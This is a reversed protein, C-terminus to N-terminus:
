AISRAALEIRDRLSPWDLTEDRLSEYAFQRVADEELEARYDVPSKGDIRALCCAAVHAAARRARDDVPQASQERYGRWFRDIRDTATERNRGIRIARFVKLVLHSLFFGLDFAPDGAHATEFDVITFGGHHVLMNKPSFDAHVFTTEVPASLGAILAGLQHRLDYHVHATLRYYPDIRLQDFVTRDALPPEHLAPSDTPIAHMRGLIRGALEALDRDDEDQLLRGKWPEAEAPARSMAFLHNDRDEFLLTPVVGAPLHENLLRLAVVENHVRDLRSFWAIETRLQARSQKLVFAPLGEPEVLLVVNSVGGSLERARVEVSEPVRGTRRLFDGITAETCPFMFWWPPFPRRRGDIVGASALRRWSILSLRFSGTWVSWPTEGRCAWDIALVVM